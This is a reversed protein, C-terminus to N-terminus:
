TPAAPPTANRSRKSAASTSTAGYGPRLAFAAALGVALIAIGCQFAHTAASQPHHDKFYAAIQPGVLGAASWATLLAGYVVPMRAAGFADAVLSPTTGFGGGYCALVYCVLAAFLWPDRVHLLLAFAVIQTTLIVRFVNARGIRDSLGGWVLRGLGNCLASAGVLAAGAAALAAVSTGPRAAALLEELLPAQFAIFMIGAAINCFLVVWMLAFERSRLAAVASHATAAGAPRHAAPPPAYGPPVYGAPPNRLLAAACAGVVGLALGAALFVQPLAARYASAVEADAVGAPMFGDLLLEGLLKSMLLAGLGFGMVVMGTALGRRDPFWKVVTAVPTVYGLGLGAGGVVGYVFLFLAASDAALGAAGVAHGLGYAIAGALALRRPGARPLLLGGAAAALGLTFMAISFAAAAVGNTWGFALVIKSQFFSWAYVTGLCLQLVVGAGAVIWRDGPAVASAHAAQVVADVRVQVPATDPYADM